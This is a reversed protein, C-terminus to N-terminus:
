VQLNQKKQQQKKLKNEEVVSTPLPLRTKKRPEDEKPKDVGLAAAGPIDKGENSTVVIGPNGAKGEASANMELTGTASM